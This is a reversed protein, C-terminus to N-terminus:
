LDVNSLFRYFMEYAEVPRYEPVMHGAGKVTAFAFHSNYKITYGGVQDKLLWPHWPEEAM